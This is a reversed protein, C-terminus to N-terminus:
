EKFKEHDYIERIDKEMSEVISIITDCKEKKAFFKIDYLSVEMKERAMYDIYEKKNAFYFILVIFVSINITPFLFCGVIVLIQEFDPLNILVQNFGIIKGLILLIASNFVLMIIVLITLVKSSLVSKVVRARSFSAKKLLLFSIIAYEVVREPLFLIFKQLVSTNFYSVEKHTVYMIVLVYSFEIILFLLFSCVSSLFTKIIDKYSYYQKFVILILAFISFTSILFILNEDIRVERLVNSLVAVPVSCIGIRLIDKKSFINFYEKYGTVQQANVLEIEYAQNFIRLLMLTFMVLFVEEPISILMINAVITLIREGGLM